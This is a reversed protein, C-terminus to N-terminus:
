WKKQPCSESGVILKGGPRFVPTGGVTVVAGVLCGCTPPDDQPSLPPGCYVGCGSPSDESEGLVQDQTTAQPCSQCVCGRLAATDDDAVDGTTLAGLYRAAGQMAIWVTEADLEGRSAMTRLHGWGLQAFTHIPLKVPAGQSQPQPGASRRHVGRRVRM